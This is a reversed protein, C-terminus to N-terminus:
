RYSELNQYPHPWTVCSVEWNIAKVASNEYESIYAWIFVYMHICIGAYKPMYYMYIYKLLEHFM